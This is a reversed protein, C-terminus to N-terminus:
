KKINMWFNNTKPIKEKKKRQVKRMWTRNDDDDNSKKANQEGYKSLESATQNAPQAIVPGNEKLEGMIRM